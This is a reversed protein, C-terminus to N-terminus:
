RLEGGSALRSKLQSFSNADKYLYGVFVDKDEEPIPPHSAPDNALSLYLDIYKLQDKTTNIPKVRADTYKNEMINQFNYVLYAYLESTWYNVQAQDPMNYEYKLWLKDKHNALFDKVFDILQDKRNQNTTNSLVGALEKVTDIPNEKAAIQKDIKAKLESTLNEVSADPTDPTLEVDSNELDKITLVKETDSDDKAINTITTILLYGLIAVFLVTIAVFLGIIMLKKKTFSKHLKFQPNEKNSEDM